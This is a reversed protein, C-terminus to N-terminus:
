EILSQDTYFGYCNPDESATPYRWAPAFTPGSTIQWSEFCGFCGCGFRSGGCGSDEVFGTLFESAPNHIEISRIQDACVLTLLITLTVKLM